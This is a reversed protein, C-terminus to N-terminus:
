VHKGILYENDITLDISSVLEIVCDSINCNIL